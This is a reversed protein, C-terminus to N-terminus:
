LQTGCNDWRKHPDEKIIEEMERRSIPRGDPSFAVINNKKLIEMSKRLNEKEGKRLGRM